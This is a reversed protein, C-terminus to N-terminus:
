FEGQSDELAVVYETEPNEAVTVLVNQYELDQEIVAEICKLPQDPSGM